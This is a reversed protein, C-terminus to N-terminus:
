KLVDLIDMEAHYKISTPCSYIQHHTYINHLHVEDDSSEGCDSVLDDKLRYDIKKRNQCEITNENEPSREQNNVEEAMIHKSNLIGFFLFSNICKDRNIHIYKCTKNKSEGLTSCTCGEEDSLDNRGCDFVTDCVHQIAVIRGNKCQYM